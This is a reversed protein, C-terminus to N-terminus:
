QRRGPLDPGEVGASDEPALEGDPSNDSDAGSEIGVGSERLLRNAQVSTMREDWLEVSCPLRNRLKQAFSAARQSMATEGGAHSLPNGVIVRQVSNDAVLRGVYELDADLRTRERTPIGQATVGLPDSIALGLRKTGFDIALIRARHETSAAIM